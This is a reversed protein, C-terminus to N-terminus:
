FLLLGSYPDKIGATKWPPFLRAVFNSLEFSYLVLKFRQPHKGSLNFTSNRFSQRSLALKTVPSWKVRKM